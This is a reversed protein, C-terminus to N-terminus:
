FLMKDHMDETNKAITKPQKYMYMCTHRYLADCFDYYRRLCWVKCYKTFQSTFAEPSEGVINEVELCKKKCDDRFVLMQLIEFHNLDSKKEVHSQITVQFLNLVSKAVEYLLLM